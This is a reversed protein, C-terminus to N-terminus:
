KVPSPSPIETGERMQRLRHLTLEVARKALLEKQPNYKRTHRNLIRFNINMNRVWKKRSEGGGKRNAFYFDAFQEVTVEGSDIRKALINVKEASNAPTVDTVLQQLFHTSKGSAAAYLSVQPWLLLLALATIITQLM